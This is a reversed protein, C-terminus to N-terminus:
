RTPTSPISLSQIREDSPDYVNIVYPGVEHKDRPKGLARLVDAERYFDGEEDHALVFVARTDSTPGYQYWRKDAMWEFPKLKGAGDSILARIKVRDKTSATVISSSWYPGYGNILGNNSLWRSVAEIEKAVLVARRPSQAYAVLSFALSASLAFYLYPGLWRTLPQRRAILIAGFVLAPFFYRITTANVIQTSFLGSLVDIIFAATLLADLYDSEFAPWRRDAAKVSAHFKKWVQLLALILLALFPLRILSLVPGNIPSALLDKGFFDCGFLSFFYQLTWVVNKGLESFPVFRMQLHSIEFGGTLSNLVLLIKGFVVAVITAALVVHNPGSNRAYLASFAAVAIVPLAGVFIALPDGIVALLMIFTYAVLLLRWRSQRSMVKKVFLFCLLVYLITGIHIQAHSILLMAGNNSTIPLLIPTVVAAVALAKNKAALGDQALLVSLVAVGAWLMAPLYFMIYPNFGLCRVFIPYALMDITLFNDAPMWWWILRWNGNSMDYGALLSNADDSSRPFRRFNYYYAVALIIFSLVLLMFKV